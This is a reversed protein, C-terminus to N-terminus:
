VVMVVLRDLDPELSPAELEHKPRKTQAAQLAQLDTDSQPLSNLSHDGMLESFTQIQAPKQQIDIPLVAVSAAMLERPELSEMWIRPFRNRIMHYKKKVRKM